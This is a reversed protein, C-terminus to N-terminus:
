ALGCTATRRHYYRECPSWRPPVPKGPTERCERLLPIMASINKRGTSQFFVRSERLDLRQPGCIGTKLEAVPVRDLLVEEAFSPNEILDELLAILDRSVNM